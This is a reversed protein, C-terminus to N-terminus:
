KVTVVDPSSVDYSRAPRRLLSELIRAKEASREEDGWTATRGDTLRLTVSAPSPAVVEDMRGRLGDPLAALVALASRTAPDDAAPRQVRLLPLRVAPGADGLVVGYRDMTVTRGDVRALALPTREVVSVQLTGPWARDVRASEVRTLAAVRVRVKELDVRALPTGPAVGAARRVEDAPVGVAGSIQVDRVGLVPSFLVLWTAAGVVGGTLLTALGVRWITTRM